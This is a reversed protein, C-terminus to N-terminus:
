ALLSFLSWMASYYYFFSKQILLLASEFSSVATSYAKSFLLCVVVSIVM